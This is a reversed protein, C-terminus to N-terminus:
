SKGSALREFRPDGRLPAFTPDIKLWAPTLFYHLKMIAQLEDLAEGKRGALIYVRTLLHMYYPAFQADVSVPSMEVGRKAEAIAEDFSGAYALSLGLLSHRQADTPSERVQARLLRAASDGWARALDTEGRWGYIQARVIALSASDGDFAEPGLSLVLRQGADDLAWGLDWYIAMYAALDAPPIETASRLVRRADPLDGSCLAVIARDQAASPNRPALAMARDTFPRADAPRRLWLYIRAVSAPRAATRPDLTYAANAYSLAEEWRDASALVSSLTVLVSADSPALRYAAEAEALAKANDFKVGRYYNAL